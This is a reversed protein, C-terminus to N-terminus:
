RAAACAGSPRPWARGALRRSTRWPAQRLIYLEPGLRELLKEYEQTVRRSSAGTGHVEGLVEPLPVLNYYPHTRPPRGGPPRDALVEVRHMVGVTIEKGCVPCIGNHAITEPPEWCINCNRHGDLHYKGEEPFFEITGACRAPDGSRLAQM